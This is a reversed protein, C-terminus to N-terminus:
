RSREIYDAIMAPTDWLEGLELDGLDIERGIQEEIWSALWLTSHSDLLGSRLLSTQPGVGEPVADEKEIERLVNRVFAIVSGLLTAV